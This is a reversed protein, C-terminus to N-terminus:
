FSFKELWDAIKQALYIVVGIGISILGAAIMCLQKQRRTWWQGKIFVM